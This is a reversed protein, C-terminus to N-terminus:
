SVMWRAEDRVQRLLRDPSHNHPFFVKDSVRNLAVRLRGFRDAVSEFLDTLGHEAALEHNAALQYGRRGLEDFYELDPGGRRHRRSEIHDPFLGALWLAYNGLHARVLFARTADGSDAEAVLAALTEYTQDDYERIRHARDREGFHLLISTVFDAIARDKEGTDNLAHRVLVYTFLPLSAHAAQHNALLASLLQPDDLISDIGRERLAAEATSYADGSGHAVLRLALQADERTLRQRVNALIM